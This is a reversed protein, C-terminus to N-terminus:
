CSTLESRHLKGPVLEIRPPEPKARYRRKKRMGPLRPQPPFHFATDCERCEFYRCWNLDGPMEYLASGCRPCKLLGISLPQMESGARGASAGGQLKKATATSSM